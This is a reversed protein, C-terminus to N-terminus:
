RCLACGHRLLLWGERQDVAVAEIGAAFSYEPGVQRLHGDYHQAIVIATDDGPAVVSFGEDFHAFRIKLDLVFELLVANDREGGVICQVAVHALTHHAQDLRHHRRNLHIANILILQM